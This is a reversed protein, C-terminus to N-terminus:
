GLEVGDGAPEVGIVEPTFQQGSNVFCHLGVQPKQCVMRAATEIDRSYINTTRSHPLLAGNRRNPISTLHHPTGKASGISDAKM